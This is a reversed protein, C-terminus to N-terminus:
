NMFEIAHAECFFVKDDKLYYFEIEKKCSSCLQWRM